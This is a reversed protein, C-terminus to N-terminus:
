GLIEVLEAMSTIVPVDLKPWDRERWDILIADMGVSRAGMVDAYYSDGVHLMREATTGARRVALQYFAPSPKSFGIAGSVLAWDLFRSLGLRRLIRPLGSVWDSVVGLRYGRQSLEHLAPLVGDYARWNEPDNYAAIISRAHVQQQDDIGLDQLLQGYYREYLRHIASDSTWTMSHPALYDALFFREARSWAAAIQATPSAPLGLAALREAVVVPAERVPYILTYGADLSIADYRRRTM